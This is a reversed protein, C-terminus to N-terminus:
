RSKGAPRLTIAESNLFVQGEAVLAERASPNQAAAFKIAVSQPLALAVNEASEWPIGLVKGRVHHSVELVYGQVEPKTQFQALLAKLMPLLIDELTQRVRQEPGVQNRAYAAYYNGTAELVADGNFRAFRVSRQDSRKGTREDVDLSPNLYFHYPFPLSSIQRGASSLEKFYKQQLTRMDVDTIASPPTAYAPSRFAMKSARAGTVPLSLLTQPTAIFSADEESFQFGADKFALGIDNLKPFGIHCTTCSTNYQRSFQDIAVARHPVLLLRLGVTAVMIPLRFTQGCYPSRM